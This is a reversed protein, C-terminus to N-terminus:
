FFFGSPISSHRVQVLLPKTSTFTSQNGILTGFFILFHPYCPDNGGSYYLGSEISVTKSNKMGRHSNVEMPPVKERRCEKSLFFPLRSSEIRAYPLSIYHVLHYEWLDRLLFPYSSTQGENARLSVVLSSHYPILLHLM